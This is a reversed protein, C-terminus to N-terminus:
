YSLLQFLEAARERNQVFILVPPELGEQLMTRFHLLKGHENGVFILEQHILSESLTAVRGGIIIRVPSFMIAKALREPRAGITASFMAKVLDPHTCQAFVADAQHVFDSEFLRDAEDLVLYEISALSLLGAELLKLLRM